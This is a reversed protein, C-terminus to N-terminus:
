PLLEKMREGIAEYSLMSRVEKTGLAARMRFEERDDVVRRMVESLHEWSHRAWRLGKFAPFMSTMEPSVPEDDVYKVLFSNSESMFQRTGGVEPGICGIGCAMAEAYPLGFGERSVGVYCDCSRYLAPMMNAPVDHGYMLIKPSSTLGLERRYRLIRLILDKRAADGFDGFYIKLVLCVDEDPRFATWYARLLDRWAKRETFDFVSLFAFGRRNSIGWRAGNPSYAEMDLAHPLVCTPSKVGANVLADKSYESGTWIADMMDCYPVWCSPVSCMEFITYGISFSTRNDRFFTDATQHQVTPADRSVKVRSLRDYLAYAEDDMGRSALAASRGRECARIRIGTSEAARLYGRGASAYGSCDLIPGLWRLEKMRSDYTTHHFSMLAIMREQPM